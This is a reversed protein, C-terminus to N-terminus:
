EHRLTEVPNIRTARIAPILAAAMAVTAMFAAVLLLTFWDAPRVGFLQQRVIRGAGLALPVGALLGCLTPVAGYRAARALVDGRSAGLALRVGIERRCQAIASVVTGYIGFAALLVAAVAFAGVAWASSRPRALSAAIMDDMRQVPSRPLDPEIERVITEIAPALNPADASARVILERTEHRMWPTQTKPVYIGPGPALRLALERVDGTVGVIEVDIPEGRDLTLRRGVPNATGFHARALAGNIIVVRPAGDTDSRNFSRGRVIPIRLAAFYEHGVARIEALATAGSGAGGGAVSFPASAGHGSLPLWDVVAAAEVGPLAKVREVVRDYFGSLVPGAPYRAAPPSLRTTLVGRAEFGPTTTQLAHFSRVLLAAGALLALSMAAELGILVARSRHRVPTSVGAGRRMRLCGDSRLAEFAAVLACVTTCALSIAVGAALTTSDIRIEGARPVGAATAAAVLFDSALVALWFGAAAALFGIVLNESLLQRVIRARGAGLALRTAFEHQRQLMGGVLLGAANGCAVLLLAAVAAALMLLSPRADRTLQELLSAVTVGTTANTEPHEAALAKATLELEARASEIPVGTRLRGVVRLMRANRRGANPDVGLPVWVEPMRPWFAQSHFGEPLVGIITFPTGSLLIAKGVISPDQQYRRTWVGHGIVAVRAAGPHDEEPLFGRGLTPRVGFVDFIGSTARAGAVREAQGSGTLTFGPPYYAGLRAFSTTRQEFDFFDLPSTLHDRGLELSLSSIAVLRDPDPHPLPRLLTAHIVSFVALNLGVGIALVAMVTLGRGRRLQRLAYRTDQRLEDLLRLGRAQRLQEKLGEIGGLEARARREAERRPVGARVLDDTFAEVHFRLEESMEREFRTRRLLGRGVSRVAALLRM